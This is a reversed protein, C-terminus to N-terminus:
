KKKSSHRPRKVVQARSDASTGVSTERGFSEIGAKPNRIARIAERKSPAADDRHSERLKRFVEEVQEGDLRGRTVPLQITRRTKPSATKSM